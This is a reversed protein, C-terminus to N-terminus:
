LRRLCAECGCVVEPPNASCVGEGRADSEMFLGELECGGEELYRALEAFDIEWGPPM